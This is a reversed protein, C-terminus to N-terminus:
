FKFYIYPAIGSPKLALILMGTAFWLVPRAAFPLRESTGIFWRRLDPGWFNILFGIAIAPLVLLEFGTGAASPSLMRGIYAWAAGVNEARFFVRAFCVMAMTYLWSLALHWPPDPQKMDLGRWRKFDLGMRYLALAVGHIAGWMVFKWDAGHWFGCVLMTLLLNFYTRWNGRRSGGLPFYIYDRLWSSLTMHWRRWYEGSNTSAYPHNFNEPIYIGLLLGLGRAVDIYGSVDAYIQITYAVMAVWLAVSSYNEPTGFVASVCHTDLFTALVAKKFLGSLILSAARGVDPVANPADAEFQPLLDRSRCIPGAVLKPFFATFLAFDLLNAAKLGTGRYLDVCYAINQFTYFSIGAPLVLQLIPLHASLGFISALDGFSESFFNFYKFTGLLGLNAVLSFALWARKGALSRVRTLGEGAGFNLLTALLILGLVQWNWGAYFVYSAVLLWAKQYVRRRRILWSISATVAFFTAFELTPFQV